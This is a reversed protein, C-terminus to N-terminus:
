LPHVQSLLHDNDPHALFRAAVTSMKQGPASHVTKFEKGMEFHKSPPKQQGAKLYEMLSEPTQTKHHVYYGPSDVGHEGTVHYHDIKGSKHIMVHHHSTGYKNSGINSVLHRTDGRKKDKSYLDNAVSSRHSHFKKFEARLPGHTSAKDLDEIDSDSPEKHIKDHSGRPVSSKQLDQATEPYFTYPSM